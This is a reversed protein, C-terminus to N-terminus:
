IKINLLLNSNFILMSTLKQTNKPTSVAESWAVTAAVAVLVPTAELPERWVGM